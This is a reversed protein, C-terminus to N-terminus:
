FDNTYNTSSFPANWSWSCPIDRNVLHVNRLDRVLIGGMGPSWLLPSRLWLRPSLFYLIMFSKEIAWSGSSMWSFFPMAMFISPFKFKKKNGSWPQNWSQHRGWKVRALRFKMETWWRLRRCETTATRGADCESRAWRFVFSSNNKIAREAEILVRM